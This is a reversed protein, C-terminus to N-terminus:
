EFGQFGVQILRSILRLKLAPLNLKKIIGPYGPAILFLETSDIRDEHTYMMEPNNFQRYNFINM